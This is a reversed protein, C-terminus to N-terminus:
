SEEYLRSREINGLLKGLLSLLQEKESSSFGELLKEDISQCERTWIKAAEMGKETLELRNTRRCDEDADRILFDNKRLAETMRSVAAPDIGLYSAIDSQSSTGYSLLYSLVRPQGRGLGLEERIPQLMKDKGHFTRFLLQNLTLPM